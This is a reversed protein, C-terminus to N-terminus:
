AMELADEAELDLADNHWASLQAASQHLLNAESPTKARMALWRTLDVKAKRQAPPMRRFVSFGEYEVAGVNYDLKAEAKLVKPDQETEWALQVVAARALEDRKPKSM